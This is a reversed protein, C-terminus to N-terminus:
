SPSLRSSRDLHERLFARAKVASWTQPRGALAGTEDLFTAIPCSFLQEAEGRDRASTARALIAQATSRSFTVMFLEPHCYVPDYALGIAYSLSRILDTVAIEEEIERAMEQFLDIEGFVEGPEAYGGVLYLAGPNQDAKLSRVTVIVHGDSTLVLATLGLPDARAECPHEDAFGPHRTAVYASFATVEASLHLWGEMDAKWTEMRLLAGDFAMPNREVHAAWMTERLHEVAAGM